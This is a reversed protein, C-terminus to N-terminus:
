LKTVGCAGLLGRVDWYPWRKPPDGRLERKRTLRPDARLADTHREAHYPLGTMWHKNEFIVHVFIGSFVPVLLIDIPQADPKYVETITRLEHRQKPTVDIQRNFGVHGCDKFSKVEIVCPAFPPLAILLDPIGVTFQNTLKHCYGGDFKVSQRIQAQIDTEKM